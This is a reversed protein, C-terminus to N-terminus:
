TSGSCIELLDALITVVADPSSSRSDLGHANNLSTARAEPASLWAAIEKGTAAFRVACKKENREKSARAIGIASIGRFGGGILTNRSQVSVKAPIFGEITFRITPMRGYSFM